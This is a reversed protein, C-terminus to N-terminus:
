KKRIPIWYEIKNETLYVELEPGQDHIYTGNKPLWEMWAYMECEMLANIDNGASSFIAWQYPKVRVVEYEGRDQNENTEVSIYFYFSRVSPDKETCSLGLIASKTISLEKEKHFKTIREITGDTQCTRWFAAFLSNDTGSIWTKAGIVYFESKNQINVSVM